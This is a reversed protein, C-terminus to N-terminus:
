GDQIKMLTTISTEPTNLLEQAFLINFSVEKKFKLFRIIGKLTVCFYEFM